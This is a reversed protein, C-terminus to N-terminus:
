EPLRKLVRKFHGIVGKLTTPTYGKKGNRYATNCSFMVRGSDNGWIKPYANAWYEMDNRETFGLDKAMKGAGEWFSTRLGGYTGIKDEMQSVMYWGAVCHVTGCRHYTDRVTVEMMNLNSAKRALPLVKELNSIVKQM